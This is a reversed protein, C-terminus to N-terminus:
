EQSMLERIADIAFSFDVIVSPMNPRNDNGSKRDGEQKAFLLVEGTQVDYLADTIYNDSVKPYKFSFNKTVYVEAYCHNTVPNYHSTVTSTLAAGVFGMGNSARADDTLKQCKTRLDFVEVASPRPSAAAPKVPEVKAVTWGDNKAFKWGIFGALALALILVIAKM